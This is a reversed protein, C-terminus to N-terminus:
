LTKEKLKDMLKSIDSDEQLLAKFQAKDAKIISVGSIVVDYVLWQDKNKIQIKPKYFKYVVNLKDDNGILSSHLIARTKIINGKKDKQHETSDVVIKENTFKDLKESYSKKMRQVYIKIFENKQEQTLAKWQKSGLSLKAMLEFDFMPTVTNVINNNRTTANVEKNKVIEVVKNTTNIFTEKINDLPNTAQLNVTLLTAALTEKIM